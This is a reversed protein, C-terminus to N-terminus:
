PMEEDDVEYIGWSYVFDDMVQEAPTVFEWEVINGIRRYAARMSSWPSKIVTWEIEPWVRDDTM